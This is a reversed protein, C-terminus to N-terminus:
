GNLGEGNEKHWAQHCAACLWRINLPKAYDDHHAHTKDSSGCNACPEEYLLGSKIARSVARHAKVKNPYKARYNALYEKDQRNGRSRDYARIKDINKERHVLVRGKVCSKCKNLHGDAMEAHAYFESLCKIEKCDKCEKQTM